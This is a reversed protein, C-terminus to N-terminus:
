LGLLKREYSTLKKLAAAHDKAATKDMVEKKLRAKDAEQHDRWWMQMELSYKSVDSRQLKKCLAETLTNGQARSLGKNYVTPHYGDWHGKNLHKQGNVEDLLCCM